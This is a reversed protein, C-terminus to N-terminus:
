AAVYFQNMGAEVLELVDGDVPFDISLSMEGIVGQVVSVFLQVSLVSAM